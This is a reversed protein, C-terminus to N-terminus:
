LRLYLGQKKRIIKVLRQDKSTFVYVTGDEPDNGLSCVVGSLKAYGGRMDKYNPLNLEEPGGDVM